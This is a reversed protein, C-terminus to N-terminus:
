VALQNINVMQSAPPPGPIRVANWQTLTVSGDGPPAAIKLIYAPGHAAVYATGGHPGSLLWVPQGDLTVAGLLKVQNPPLSTMSRTMSAITLSGFLSRPAPYEVYKGCYLNCATAPLHAFRLFGASLKLYTRGHTVLLTLAAGDESIQGWYAGSNTISLNMGVTQGNQKVTGSLHVSSVTRLAVNMQHLLVTVDPWRSPGSGSIGPQCHEANRNPLLDVSFASIAWHGGLPVMRWTEFAYDQGPSALFNVDVKRTRPNEQAFKSGDDCTTVTANHATLSTVRTMFFRDVGAPALDDKKANRIVTGLHSFAQGTVYDRVPAVPRRAESSKIWLVQAERFSEVVAAQAPNAPPPSGFMQTYLGLRVVDAVRVAPRGPSGSGCASLLLLGPLVLM